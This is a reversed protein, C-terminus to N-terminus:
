NIKKWSMFNKQLITDSFLSSSCNNQVKNNKNNDNSEVGFVEINSNQGLNFPNHSSFGNVLKIKQYESWNGYAKNYITRVRFEYEKNNILGRIELNTEKGEYNYINKNNDKIELNYRYQTTNRLKQSFQAIKWSINMYNNNQENSKINIPTSIENFYYNCYELIIENENYKINMNKMLENIFYLVKQNNKEKELIYSLTKIMVPKSKEENKKM